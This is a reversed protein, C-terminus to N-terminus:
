AFHDYGTLEVEVPKGDPGMVLVDPDNTLVGLARL